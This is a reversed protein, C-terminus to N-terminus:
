VSLKKSDLDSEANHFASLSPEFKGLKVIKFLYQYIGVGKRCKKICFTGVKRTKFVSLSVSNGLIDTFEWGFDFENSPTFSPGIPFRYRNM